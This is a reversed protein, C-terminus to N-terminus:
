KFAPKVHVPLSATKLLFSRNKASPFRHNPSRSRATVPSPNRKAPTSIHTKNKSSYLSVSVGHATDAPSRRNGRINPTNNANRHMPTAYSDSYMMDGYVNPHAYSELVTNEVEVAGELPGASSRHDHHCYALELLPGMVTDNLHTHEFNADLERINHSIAVEAQTDAEFTIKRKIDQTHASRPVSHDVATVEEEENRWTNDRLSSYTRSDTRKEKQAQSFDESPSAYQGYQDLDEEIMDVISDIYKPSKFATNPATMLPTPYPSSGFECPPPPPPSKDDANPSPFLRSRSPPFDGFETLSLASNPQLSAIPTIDPLNNVIKNSSTNENAHKKSINTTRPSTNSISVSQKVNEITNMHVISQNWSSELHHYQERYRQATSQVVRMESEVLELKANMQKILAEHELVKRYAESAKSCYDEIEMDISERSRCGVEHYHHLTFCEQSKESIIKRLNANETTLTEIQERSRYELEQISETISTIVSSSSDSVSTQIQKKNGDNNKIHQSFEYLGMESLDSIENKEDGGAYKGNKSGSIETAENPNSHTCSNSLWTLVVACNAHLQEYIGTPVETKGDEISMKLLNSTSFLKMWFEKLQIIDKLQSIENQQDETVTM